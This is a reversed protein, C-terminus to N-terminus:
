PQGRWKQLDRLLDALWVRAGEDGPDDLGRNADYAVLNALTTPPLPMALVNVLGDIGTDITFPNVAVMHRVTAELQSRDSDCVYTWLFERVADVAASRSMRSELEDQDMGSLIGGIRGGAVRRKMSRNAM